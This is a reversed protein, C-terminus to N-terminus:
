SPGNKTYVIKKAVNDPGFVVSLGKAEFVMNYKRTDIFSFQYSIAQDGTDEVLPYVSEGSPEGLARLIDARTTVGEKFAFVTAEDFNTNDTMFNSVYQYGVLKNNYFSFSQARSSPVGAIMGATTMSTAYSYVITRVQAGNETKSNVASPKGLRGVVDQETTTNLVLENNQIRDFKTGACAAVLLALALAISV